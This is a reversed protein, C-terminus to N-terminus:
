IVIMMKFFSCKQSFFLEEPSTKLVLNWLKNFARGGFRFGWGYFPINWLSRGFISWSYNISITPAQDENDEDESDEYESDEDESDEDEDESDEDEDEDESDEDESDEDEDESDEDESDEDEDEDEGDEDEDEGCSSFFNYAQWLKSPM